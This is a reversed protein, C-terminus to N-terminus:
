YVIHHLLNKNITLKNKFIKLFLQFLIKNGFIVSYIFWRDKVLLNYIIKAFGKIYKYFTNANYISQYGIERLFRFVFSSSLKRNKWMLVRLLNYHNKRILPDFSFYGKFNHSKNLVKDLTVEDSALINIYSNKSVKLLADTTLYNRVFIDSTIVLLINNKKM